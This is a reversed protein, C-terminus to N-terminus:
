LSAPLSKREGMMGNNGHKENQRRDEPRELVGDSWHELVGNKGREEQGGNAKRISQWVFCDTVKDM